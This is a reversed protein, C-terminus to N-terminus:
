KLYYDIEKPKEFTDPEIYMKDWLKYAALNWLQAYQWFYKPDPKKTLISNIYEHKFPTNTLKEKDLLQAIIDKLEGKYWYYNNMNFGQKKKQFVNKPLLDKMAQQLVYKGTNNKIKFKRPITFSYEVLEHDLFPVRGEVSAAMTLRDLRELLDDTLYTKLELELMNHFHDKSKGVFSSIQNEIKNVSNRFDNTLLNQQDDDFMVQPSIVTYNSLNDHLTSMYKLLRRYESHRPLLKEMKSIAKTQILKPIMRNLRSRSNIWKHRRYGGFLEDGGLGSLVVTVKEKALKSILMTPIINRQPIDMHWIANVYHKKLENSEVNLEHHDTGFKESIKRADNLEDWPENFGVSYTKLPQDVIQSMLGVITASDIGGSLFAGVPVDSIMRRKVSTELLKRVKDVYTTESYNTLSTNVDWYKTINVRGERFELYHGPRLRKIGHFFTEEGLTYNVNLFNYLAQNNLQRKVEPVVLLSKIESAFYLKDGIISYHLPKIGIRDRALFLKKNTDDWIAIAFMGNLKHLSQPGYLEFLKLVVETDTNTNFKIGSNELEARLEKYNYIEGNYVIVLNGEDNFIPQRGKESLDIISLRRHGLSIGKNTYYGSDDPGRHTVIDSMAKVLNKDELGAIGNIGCM